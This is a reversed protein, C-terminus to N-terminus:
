LLEAVKGPQGEHNAWSAEVMFFSTQNRKAASAAAASMTSGTVLETLSKHLLRLVIEKRVRLPEGSGGGTGAGGRVTERARLPEGSGGGTGAGGRVDIRTALPDGSGGGTGAGGRAPYIKTQHGQQPEAVPLTEDM